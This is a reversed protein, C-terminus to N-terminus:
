AAGTSVGPGGAPGRRFTSLGCGGDVPQSLNVSRATVAGTGDRTGQATLCLGVKVESATAKATRTYSTTSSTTVRVDQTTGGPRTSAVTFGDSHVATVKGATGLSVFRGPGGSPMGSPAGSPPATPAGSPGSVFTRGPRGGPGRTCDGSTSLIRVTGAAVTTSSAAASSSATPMAVVCDGVQVDAAAAKVEQAFTTRANWTVATQSDASQVQATRGSVAAIKGSAGPFDPGGAAGPRGTFSGGQGGSGQTSPGGSGNGGSSGCGALVAALALVVAGTGIVKM